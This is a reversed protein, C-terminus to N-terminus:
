RLIARVVSDHNTRYTKHERDHERINGFVRRDSSENEGSRRTNHLAHNTRLTGFDETWYPCKFHSHKGNAVGRMLCISKQNITKEYCCVRCKKEGLIPSYQIKIQKTQPVNINKFDYVYVTNDKNHIIRRLPLIDALSNKNRYYWLAFYIARHKDVILSNKPFTTFIEWLENGHKIRNINLTIIM